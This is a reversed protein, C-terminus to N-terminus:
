IRPPPPRTQTPAPEFAMDLVMKEEITGNEASKWMKHLFPDIDIWHIRRMNQIM